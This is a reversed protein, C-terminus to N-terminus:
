RRASQSKKEFEKEKAERKLRDLTIENM